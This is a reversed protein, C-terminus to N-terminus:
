VSNQPAKKPSSEARHSASTASPSTTSRSLVSAAVSISIAQSKQRRFLSQKRKVGKPRPFTIKAPPTRNNTHQTHQHPPSVFTQAKASPTSFQKAPANTPITSSSLSGGSEQYHALSRNTQSPASQQQPFTFRSLPIPHPNSTIRGPWNSPYRKPDTTGGQHQQPARRQLQNPALRQQPRPQLPLQQGRGQKERPAIKKPTREAAPSANTPTTATQTRAFAAIGTEAPPQPPPTARRSPNELKSPNSSTPKTCIKQISSANTSFGATEIAWHYISSKEESPGTAGSNMSTTSPAKGAAHKMWSNGSTASSYTLKASSIQASNLSARM